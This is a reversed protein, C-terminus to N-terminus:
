DSVTTTGAAGLNTGVFTVLWDDGVDSSASASASASFFGADPLEAILSSDVTVGGDASPAFCSIAVRQEDTDGGMSVSVMGEGGGDWTVELSESRSLAYGGAAEAEPATLTFPDPLVLDMSFAPVDDSGSAEVTVEVSETWLYETLPMSAYRGTTEDYSMEPNTSLGSFTIDGAGVIVPPDGAAGDAETIPCVVMTCSDVTTTECENEGATAVQSISFVGSATGSVIPDPLGAIVLTSQDLSIIGSKVEMTEGDGSGGEGEVPAEADGETPAEADGEVPAEADGETPAEADGEAGADSLVDGADAGDDDADDDDSDDAGAEADDSDDTDDDSDDTDDDSDDDSDDTDDDSDDDSDDVGAEESTDDSDDTDAGDDSCATFIFPLAAFAAITSLSTLKM